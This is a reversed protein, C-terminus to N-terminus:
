GGATFTFVMGYSGNGSHSWGGNMHPHSGGMMGGTMMSGTAWHGGMHAGHTELNVHRGRTDTMGGGLHITYDTVPKLAQSPTFVLETGDAELRWAGDVVPGRVDGEHLAVYTAMHAHIPHDFTVVVPGAPNVMTAGGAPSVTLLVVGPATSAPDSACAVAGVMALGLFAALRVSRVKMTSEM